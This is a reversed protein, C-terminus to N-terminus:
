TFENMYVRYILPVWQQQLKKNERSEIAVSDFFTKWLKQFKQEDKSYNPIDFSSVNQVGKAFENHVFALGRKIDHIIFNQNNLRKMFHKGLFYVVNFKTEVKAYLTGDELEVFRVFGTMKHNLRFLERQLNQINFVSMNNINNLEKQNKFGLIIFALLDMEFEVSDCMFINLITEFHEKQFKIQLAKLVKTYKEEDKQIEIMEDLFLTEPMQKKIQTVQLKSYYVEYILTLFSEFTKDYILTM